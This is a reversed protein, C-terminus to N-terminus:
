WMRSVSDAHTHISKRSCGPKQSGKLKYIDKLVSALNIGHGSQTWYDFEPEFENSARTKLSGTLAPNTYRLGYLSYPLKTYSLGANSKPRDTHAFLSPLLIELANM